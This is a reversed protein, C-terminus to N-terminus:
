TTRSATVLVNFTSQKRKDGGCLLLVCARGIIAYYIRYGPGYRIRLEFLGRGLSAHDGFNGRSVRDIRVAIRVRARDDALERLWDAIVDIGAAGVFHRVEM